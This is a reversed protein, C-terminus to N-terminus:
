KSCNNAVFIASPVYKNNEFDRGMLVVKDKYVRIQYGHSGTMYEGTIVNYSTWLYGVSATNFINPLEEDREYMCGESNLEWHSHGNFMLVQPYKKLIARLQDAQKTGESGAGDWNQGPFSGAVTNYLSQHLMVFVPKTPDTKTDQALLDDLWQLQKDSLDARLGQKESGMFIYHYNDIMRDYYVTDTGTNAYKIFLKAQTDYDNASLDHNGISMYIDPIGEVRKKLEEMKQYESEQGTDAIDGNIIIAKSNPSNTVVDNLMKVFHDNNYYNIDSQIISRNTIHVDSTMTFETIPKENGLSFNCGTPLKVQVYGDSLGNKNSTYVLLRTAKEPIITNKYMELTTVKGTVKQKALSTYDSLPGKDDAWYMVIDTSQNDKDQLTVTVKGNALGDKENDLKYTASVPTLAPKKEKEVVTVYKYGDIDYLSNRFLIIKYKGIALSSIHNADKETLYYRYIPSSSLVDANEKYIGVWSSTTGTANIQIDEGEEYTSKSTTLKSTKVPIKSLTETKELGCVTCTYTKQGEKTTTAVKTVRGEDWTHATKKVYNTYYFHSKDKSCVYKTYGQKICTPKVVTKVYSHKHATKVTIVSKLSGQAITATITTKGAKIGTVLGKSSVTAVKTNSSKWKVALKNNAVKLQYTDDDTITKKTVNLKAGSVTVKCRYNKGRVRATITATGSKKATVKGASTVSAVKANSSKWTAKRSTGSVKLNYTNAKMLTISTKNLKVKSAAQVSTPVCLLIILMFIM